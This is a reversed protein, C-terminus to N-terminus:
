SVPAICSLLTSRDRRDTKIREGPKSPILSPAVVASRTRKPSNDSIGYRQDPKMCVATRKECSGAERDAGELCGTHQPDEM